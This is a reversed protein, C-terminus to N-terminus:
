REPTSGLRTLERIERDTLQGSYALQWHGCRGQAFGHVALGNELPVGKISRALLHAGNDMSGSLAFDTTPGLQDNTFSVCSFFYDHDGYTIRAACSSTAAAAVSGGTLTGRECEASIDDGKVPGCAVVLAALAPIFLPTLGPRVWAVIAHPSQAQLRGGFAHKCGFV